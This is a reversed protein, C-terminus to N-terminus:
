GCPMKGAEEPSHNLGEQGKKGAWGFKRRIQERTDDLSRSNDLLFDCHRRFETDSLQNSIIAYSKVESYGRNEYLRKVREQTPVYIYWLEDCMQDYHDEILLAAEIIVLEKGSGSIEKRIAEKVAPHIIGNLVALHEQNQFVLDGLKARDISKDSKLMEEGFVQKIQEYCSEGPEMLRKGVEDALIVHADFEEELIKLVSSKGAGIGGTV